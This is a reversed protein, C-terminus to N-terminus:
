DENVRTPEYMAMTRLSVLENPRFAGYIAICKFTGDENKRFKFNAPATVEFTVDDSLNRLVAENEDFKSLQKTVKEFEAPHLLKSQTNPPNCDDFDM